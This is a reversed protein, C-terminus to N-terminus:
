APRHSRRSWAWWSLAGGGVAAVAGLVVWLRDGTMFSSSVIVGLGQLIWVVGALGLLAGLVALIAWRM